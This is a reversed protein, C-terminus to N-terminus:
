PTAASRGVPRAPSPAVPRSLALAEKAGDGRRGTAGDFFVRHWLELNLLTWIQTSRDARGEGHEELLRRVVNADFLGRQRAREDLLLDHAFARWAGGRLWGSLPVPFGLKPRRLIRAPLRDRMARRLLYKGTFGRLKLSAPVAACFEVLHHDLFPVRSEISAAMSMKDQKMLLEVLYGKLDAYLLRELLSRGSAGDLLADAARYPDGERAAAPLLLEAQAEPTFAAYFNDWHLARFSLPRMLFSRRAWRGPRSGAPLRSLLEPMWRARVPAPCWREWATGCRANWYSAATRGYGALLEDSGEGTLVVKVSGAALESLHLLPVAAPFCIPEDHHWVARPLSELFGQADLVAEHHETQFVRSVERAYEFEHYGAEAFGISFTQLPRSM